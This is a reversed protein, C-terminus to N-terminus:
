HRLECAELLNGDPDFFFFYTVHDDQILQEVQVGSAQLDQRLLRADSTKFIPYTAEDKHSVIKKDTQWLTLSTAGNTDLVVLNIDHDHWAITFGLNNQYWAISKEIDSVRIIITDIGQILKNKKEM